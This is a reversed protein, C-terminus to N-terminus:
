RALESWDKTPVFQSLHKRNSTIVTGSVLIAQAALIVDGDLAADPATPRGRLRSQSWLEAAKRLTDTDIPLYDVSRGLDDLRRLSRPDAQGKAILHLLKRRLEYDCIEPLIVQFQTDIAGLLRALWTAVPSYRATAPHCLQGLIGTDLLLIM